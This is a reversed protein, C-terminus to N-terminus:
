LHLWQFPRRYRALVGFHTHKRYQKNIFLNHYKINKMEDRERESKREWVSAKWLLLPFNFEGLQQQNNAWKSNLQSLSFFLWRFPNISLGVVIIFIIIPLYISEWHVRFAGLSSMWIERHTFHIFNCTPRVRSAIAHLQKVHRMRTLLWCNQAWTPSRYM